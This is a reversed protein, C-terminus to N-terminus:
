CLRLSNSRDHMKSPPERRLLTLINAVILVRNGQHIPPESGQGTSASPANRPETQLPMSIPPKANKTSDAIVAGPRALAARSGLWDNNTALIGTVPRNHARAVRRTRS